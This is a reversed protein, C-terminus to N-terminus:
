PVEPPHPQAHRDSWPVEVLGPRSLGRVARRGRTTVEIARTARPRRRILGRQELDELTRFAATRGHGFHEAVEDLTPWAGLFDRLQVLRVLENELQEDLETPLRM